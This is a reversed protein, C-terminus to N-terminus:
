QTAAPFMNNANLQRSHVPLRVSFDKISVGRNNIQVFKPWVEVEKAGTQKVKLMRVRCVNSLVEHLYVMCLFGYM